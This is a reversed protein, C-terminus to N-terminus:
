QQANSNSFKTADAISSQDTVVIVLLLQQLQCLLTIINIIEQDSDAIL